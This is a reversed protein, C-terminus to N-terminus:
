MEEIGFYQPYKSVFKKFSSPLMLSRLRDLSDQAEQGLGMEICMLVHQKLIKVSNPKALLGDVLLSFNKLRDTTDNAFFRSAAVIGDEFQNNASLLSRYRREAEKANRSNEALLAELYTRQNASLNVEDNLKKEIYSWNKKDAAVMLHLQEMETRLNKDLSAPVQQLLRSARNAEDLRFWKSSRDVIAQSRVREDTISNVTREFFLSDTLGIKYRSFYYKEEDSLAGVESNKALLVKKMSSAFAKISKDKSRSLSDWLVFAKKLSDAESQAIAQHYLALQHRKENAINFYGSATLPNHQELLWLGLLSFYNGDGSSFAAERLIKLADKVEGQAYLVQAAAAKLKESFVVNSPRNALKMVRNVLTTDLKDKQNILYNCLMAAEYVTLATDLNFKDEVIISLQKQNAIALANVKEGAHKIDKLSM